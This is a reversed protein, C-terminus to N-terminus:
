LGRGVHAQGRAAIVERPGKRGRGPGGRNAIAKGSDRERIRAAIWDDVESEVWAVMRPGTNVSAPFRKDPDPDKMKNYLQTGKLGTKAQVETRRILRM